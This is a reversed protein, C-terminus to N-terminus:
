HSELNILQMEIEVIGSMTAIKEMIKELVGKNTDIYVEYICKNGEQCVGTTFILTLEKDYATLIVSIRQIISFTMQEGFIIKLSYIEDTDVPIMDLKITQDRTRFVIFYNKKAIIKLSRIIDNSLNIREQEKLKEFSILQGYTEIPKLSLIKYVNKLEEKLILYHIKIDEDDSKHNISDSYFAKFMDPINKLKNIFYTLVREYSVYDPDEESCLASIMLGEQRGRAWKSEINFIYNATKLEPTFNHTFFGAEDRDLLTKVNDLLERETDVLDSPVILFIRPGMRRDFYSLILM